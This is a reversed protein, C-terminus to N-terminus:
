SRDCSRDRLSLLPLFSFLFFTDRTTGILRADNRAIAYSARRRTSVGTPLPLPLALHLALPPTPAPRIQKRVIKLTGGDLPTPRCSYHIGSTQSAQRATSSNPSPPLPTQSLPVLHFSLTVVDSRPFFSFFRAPTPSARPPVLPSAPPSPSVKKPHLKKDAGAVLRKSWDRLWGGGGGVVRYIARRERAMWGEGGCRYGGLRDRAIYSGEGGGVKPGRRGGGVM